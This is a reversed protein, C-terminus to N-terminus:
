KYTQRFLKHRKAIESGLVVGLVGAGCTIMGFYLAVSNLLIIFDFLINFNRHISSIKSPNIKQIMPVM